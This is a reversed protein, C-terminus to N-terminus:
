VPMNILALKVLLYAISAFVLFTGILNIVIYKFVKEFIKM